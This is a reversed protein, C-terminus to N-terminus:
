LKKEFIFVNKPDGTKIIKYGFLEKGADYTDQIKKQLPGNEFQGSFVRMTKAGASKMTAEIAKIDGARLRYTYFIPVNAVGNTISVEPMDVGLRTASIKASESFPVKGKPVYAGIKATQTFGAAISNELGGFVFGMATHIKSYYTAVGNMAQSSGESQTATHIGEQVYNPISPNYAGEENLYQAEDNTMKTLGGAFDDMGLLSGWWKSDSLCDLSYSIPATASGYVAKHAKYDMEEAGDLDVYQIPKNGAFQYPTYWPYEATLPDVSIFRALRTDYMRMGYDQFTGTSGYVENDNEKGNFGFLYGGAGTNGISEFVENM